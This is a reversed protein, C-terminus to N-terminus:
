SSRGGEDAWRNERLSRDSDVDPPAEADDDGTADAFGRHRDLMSLRDPLHEAILQRLRRRDVLELGTELGALGDTVIEGVTILMGRAGGEAKVTEAAALVEAQDVASDDSAPSIVVVYRTEGLPDKRTAVLCGDARQGEAMLSFGMAELLRVSLEHLAASPLPPRSDRGPRQSAQGKGYRALLVALMCVALGAFILIAIM